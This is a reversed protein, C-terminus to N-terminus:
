VNGTVHLVTKAGVKLNSCLDVIAVACQGDSTKVYILAFNQHHVSLTSGVKLLIANFQTPPQNWNHDPPGDMFNQICIIMFDLSLRHFYFLQAVTSSLICHLPFSPLPFQKMM